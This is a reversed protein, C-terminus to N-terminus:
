ELYNRGFVAIFDEITADHIELWKRECQKKLKLDLKKNYHV